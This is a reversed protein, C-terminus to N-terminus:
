VMLCGSYWVYAMSLIAVVNSMIGFLQMQFITYTQNKYIFLLDLLLWILGFGLMGGFIVDDFYFVLLSVELAVIGIILWKTKVVGLVTGTTKRGTARDPIIDMVEGMLHSQWAFLLLYFYTVWSLPALDNIAISFPAVLLYGVQCLLELPPRTRLGGEPLNYLGNILLIGGFLALMLSGVYYILVPLCVLQVIAIVWKLQDLQEKTGKAGFLFSDKRPNAADVESDVIDNWGYVLLNLPFTVYFLGVWFAPNEGIGTLQSTPLLYLWLTAFWLGPRSVKLYFLLNSLIKKM